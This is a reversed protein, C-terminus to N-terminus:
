RKRRLREAIAALDFKSLPEKQEEKRAKKQEAYYEKRDKRLGNGRKPWAPDFNM